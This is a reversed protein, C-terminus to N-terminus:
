GGPPHYWTSLTGMVAPAGSLHALGHKVMWGQGLQGLTSGDVWSVSNYSITSTQLKLGFHHIPTHLPTTIRCFGIAVGAFRGLSRFPLSLKNIWRRIVLEKM